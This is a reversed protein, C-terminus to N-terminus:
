MMVKFRIFADLRRIEEIGAHIIYGNGAIAMRIAPGHIDVHSTILALMLCEEDGGDRARGALGTHIILANYATVPLHVALGMFIVRVAIIIGAMVRDVILGGVIRTIMFEIMMATMFLLAMALAVILGGDVAIAMFATIAITLMDIQTDVMLSICADLCRIDEIGTHIIGDDVAMVMILTPFHLYVHGAMVALVIVEEDRGDSTFPAVATHMVSGHDASM